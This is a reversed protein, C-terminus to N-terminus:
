LFTGIIHRVEDPVTVPLVHRLPTIDSVLRRPLSLVHAHSGPLPVRFMFYDHTADFRISHAVVPRGRHVTVIWMM